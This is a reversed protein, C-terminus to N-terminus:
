GYTYHFILPLFHTPTHTHSLSHCRQRLIICSFSYARYIALLYSVSLSHTNFYTHPHTYTTFLDHATTPRCVYNAPFCCHTPNCRSSQSPHNGCLSQWKTSIKQQFFFAQLTTKTQKNQDCKRPTSKMFLACLHETQNRNKIREQQDLPRFQVRTTPTFFVQSELHCSLELRQSRLVLCLVASLLWQPNLRPIEADWPQRSTNIYPGTYDGLSRTHVYFFIPKGMRGAM